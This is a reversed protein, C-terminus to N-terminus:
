TESKSTELASISNDLTNNYHYPWYTITGLLLLAIVGLLYIKGSKWFAGREPKEDLKEEMMEWALPDFPLEENSLRENLQGDFINDNNNNMDLSAKFTRTIQNQSKGFVM